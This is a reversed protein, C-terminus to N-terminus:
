TKGKKEPTDLRSELQRMAAQMAEMQQRMANLEADKQQVAAQLKTDVADGAARALYDKARNKLNTAGAFRQAVADAMEALQEVTTIKFFRLEEVQARTVGPWQSLPMGESVQEENAKFAAYRTAFRRKDLDRVPRCVTNDKDGPVVIEIFERNVYKPYGAEATAVPDPWPNVFFRVALKDDGAFRAGPRFADATEAYDFEVEAM